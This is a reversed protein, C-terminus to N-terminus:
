KECTAKMYEVAFEPISRKPLFKLLREIKSNSYYTRSILADIRNQTLPFNFFSPTISVMFRILWESVILNKYKMKKDLSLSLVIDSLKCDNSLNFIQNTAKPSHSCLLLASVVDDLHIYNSVSHISRIYFFRRKVISEVLGRFSQNPMDLGVINTPRLISFTFKNSKAAELLLKDAKAKTIEYEGYPQNKSLESIKRVKAPHNISKGYVGVSSLQVWHMSHGALNIEECFAKLLREVGDVHLAHMHIPNQIDGACHFFIDCGLFFRKLNCTTSALDTYFVEVGDPFSRKRNHTLVRVLFGESMLQEVLRKGVFGSGGSVCAQKVRSFKLSSKKQIVM